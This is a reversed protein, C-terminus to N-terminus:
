WLGPRRASLKSCSWIVHVKARIGGSRLEFTGYVLMWVLQQSSVIRFGFWVADFRAFLFCFRGKDIRPSGRLSLRAFFVWM